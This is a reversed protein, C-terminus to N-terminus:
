NEPLGMARLFAPTIDMDKPYASVGNDNLVLLGQAAYGAFVADMRRQFEMAEAQLDTQSNRVKLSNEVSVRLVRTLDLVVFKPAPSAAGPLSWGMKAAVVPAYFALLLTILVTVGCMVLATTYSLPEV